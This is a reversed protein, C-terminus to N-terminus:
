IASGGDCNGTLDVARLIMDTEADFTVPSVTFRVAPANGVPTSARGEPNAPKGPAVFGPNGDRM